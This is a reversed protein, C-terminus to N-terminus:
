FRTLRRDIIYLEQYGFLANLHHLFAHGGNQEWLLDIKESIQKFSEVQDNLDQINDIDYQKVYQEILQLWTKSVGMAFEPWAKQLELPWNIDSAAELDSNVNGNIDAFSLRDIYNEDQLMIVLRNNNISQYILEADKRSSYFILSFKHGSEDAAARRHFRWIDIENDFQNIVPKLIQHAILTDLYWAPTDDEKFNRHFGVRWWGRDAVTISPAIIIRHPDSKAVTEINSQNYFSACGQLAFIMSFLLYRLCHTVIHFAYLQTKRDSAISM